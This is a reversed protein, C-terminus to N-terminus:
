GMFKAINELDEKQALIHDLAAMINDYDLGLEEILPLDVEHVPGESLNVSRLLQNSLYMLKPYVSFDDAYEPCHQWRIAAIVEEPMNWSDLLESAIIDQDVGLLHRESFINELHPNAEISRNIKDFYPPFVHALILYGFNSLLGSLYALGMSPRDEASMAKVLGEMMSASYVAQQWYRNVKVNKDDPFELARGLALGLALNIVLDFGLVRVVADHVSKVAGPAAYYPSAAWSVVQAALSPDREVLNALEGVGAEPDLRLQIIQEAIAPLPPMDLTEELRRQIRLKTFKKVSSEIVDRNSQQYRLSDLPICCDIVQGFRVLKAFEVQHLRIYQSTQGMELHLEQPSTLRVDVVLPLNDNLPISPMSEFGQSQALEQCKSPDVAYFNQGKLDRLHHLDLLCDSPVLVQLKGQEDELMILRAITKNAMQDASYLKYLPSLETDEIIQYDIGQSSLREALASPISM